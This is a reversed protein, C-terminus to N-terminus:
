VPVSWARPFEAGLVAWFILNAPYADLIAGTLGAVLVAPIIVLAWDLLLSHTEDDTQPRLRVITNYTRLVLVLFLILGGVGIELWIKFFLSHSPFYRATIGNSPQFM